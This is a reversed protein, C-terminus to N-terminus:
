RTSGPGAVAPVAASKLKWPTFFAQPVMNLCKSLCTKQLLQHLRTLCLNTTPQLPAKLLSTLTATM